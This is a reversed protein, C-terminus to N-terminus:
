EHGPCDEGFLRSVPSMLRYHKLEEPAAERIRAYCDKCVAEGAARILQETLGKATLRAMRDEVGIEAIDVACKAVVVLGAEGAFDADKRATVPKGRAEALKRYKEAAQGGIDGHLVMLAARPDKLAEEIEAYAVHEGVQSKTLVRLVRERFEGLYHTKEDHGLEMSGQLGAQLTRELESKGSFGTYSEKEKREDM